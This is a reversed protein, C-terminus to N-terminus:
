EMSITIHDLFMFIMRLVGMEEQEEMIIQIKMEIVYVMLVMYQTIVQMVHVMVM